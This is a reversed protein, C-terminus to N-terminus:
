QDDYPDYPEDPEDPEDPEWYEQAWDSFRDEACGQLHYVLISLEEDTMQNIRMFDERSIEDGEITFVTEDSDISEVETVYGSGPDCRQPGLGFDEYFSNDEYECRVDPDSLRVEISTLNEVENGDEDKYSEPVGDTIHYSVYGGDTNLDYDDEETPYKALISDRYVKDNEM